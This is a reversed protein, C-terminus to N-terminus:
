KWFKRIIMYDHFRNKDQKPVLLVSTVENEKETAKRIFEQLQVQSEESLDSLHIKTEEFRMRPHVFRLHGGHGVHKLLHRKSLFPVGNSESVLIIMALSLLILLKSMNKSDTWTTLQPYESINQETKISDLHRIKSRLINSTAVKFKCNQFRNKTFM